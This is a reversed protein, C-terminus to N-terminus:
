NQSGKEELAGVLTEVCGLLLAEYSEQGDGGGLVDIPVVPIQAELGVVRAL